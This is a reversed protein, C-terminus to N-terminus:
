TSLKRVLMRLDALLGPIENAANSTEHELGVYGQYGAKGLMGLLRNWDAPEKKGEANSVQTKLHVSTTYPLMM